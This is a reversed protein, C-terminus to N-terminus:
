RSSKSRQPRGVDAERTPRKRSEGHTEALRALLPLLECLRLLLQAAQQGLALGQLRLDIALRRLQLLLALLHSVCRRRVRRLEVLFVRRHCIRLVLLLESLLKALGVGEEGLAQHVRLQAVEAALGRGGGRAGSGAM